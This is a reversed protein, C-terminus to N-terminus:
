TRTDSVHSVHWALIAPAPHKLASFYSADHTGASRTCIRRWIARNKCCLSPDKGASKFDEGAIADSELDLRRSIAIVRERKPMTRM